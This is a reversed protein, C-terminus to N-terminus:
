SSFLSFSNYRFSVRSKDLRYQGSPERTIRTHHVKNDYYVSLAYPMNLCDEGTNRKRVM